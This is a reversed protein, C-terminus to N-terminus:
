RESKKKKAPFFVQKIGYGAAAILLIDLAVFATDAGAQTPAPPQDPSPDIFTAGQNTSQTGNNINPIGQAYDYYNTYQRGGWDMDKLNYKNMVSVLGAAYNYATAYGARHIDIAQQEPNPSTRAKAYRSLLLIKTHDNINDQPNDYARFRCKNQGCDDNFYLVRGTWSAGAKIGFFNNGQIALQSRGAGSELIMQAMKVSPFIGTGRVSDIVAQRYRAVFDLAQQTTYAM